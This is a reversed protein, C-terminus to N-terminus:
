VAFLTFFGVGQIVAPAAAPGPAPHIRVPSPTPTDAASAAAAIAPGPAPAPVPFHPAQVGSQQCCDMGLRECAAVAAAEDMPCVEEACLPLGLLLVLAGILSVSSLTRLFGPRSAM